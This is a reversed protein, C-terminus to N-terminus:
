EGWDDGYTLTNSEMFETLYLGVVAKLSDELWNSVHIHTKLTVPDLLRTVIKFASGDNSKFLMTKRLNKRSFSGMGSSTFKLSRNLPPPAPPPFTRHQLDPPPPNSGKKMKDVGQIREFNRDNTGRAM